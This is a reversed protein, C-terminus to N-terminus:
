GISVASSRLYVSVDPSGACRSRVGEIVAVDFGPLLGFQPDGLVGPLLEILGTDPHDLPIDPLFVAAACLVASDRTQLSYGSRALLCGGWDIM